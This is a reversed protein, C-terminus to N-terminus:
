RVEGAVLLLFVLLDVLMMAASSVGVEVLDVVLRIKLVDVWLHVSITIELM